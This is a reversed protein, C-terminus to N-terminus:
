PPGPMSGFAGAIRLGPHRGTGAATLFIM